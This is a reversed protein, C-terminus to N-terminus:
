ALEILGHLTEVRLEERALDGENVQREVLSITFPKADGLMPVIKNCRRTACRLEISAKEALNRTSTRRDAAAGAAIAVGRMEDRVEQATTSATERHGTVIMRADASTVERDIGEATNEKAHGHGIDTHISASTTVIEQDRGLGGEASKQGKGRETMVIGGGTEAAIADNTTELAISGGRETASKAAQTAREMM